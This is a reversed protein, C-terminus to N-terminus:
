KKVEEFNEFSLFPALVGGGRLSQVGLVAPSFLCVGIRFSIARANEVGLM